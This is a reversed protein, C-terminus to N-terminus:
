DLPLAEGKPVAVSGGGGVGEAADEPLLLASGAVMEAEALPALLPVLQPPVNLPPALEEPLLLAAAVSELLLEPEALTLPTCDTEAVRVAQLLPLLRGDSLLVVEAVPEGETEGETPPNFETEPSAEKLPTDILAAGVAGGLPLRALLLLATAELLLPPPPPPPAVPVTSASVPVPAGDFLPPPPPLAEPLALVVALSELHALMLAGPPLELGATLALPPAVKTDNETVALLPPAAPPAPLPEMALVTLGRLLELPVGETAVRLLAALPLPASAEAVASNGVGDTRAGVAEGEGLTLAVSHALTALLAEPKAVTVPATECSLVAVVAGDRRWLAEEETVKEVSADRTGVGVAVAVGDGEMVAGGDGERPCAEGEADDQGCAVGVGCREAGGEVEGRGLTEVVPEGPGLPLLKPVQLLEPHPEAERLASSVWGGVGQGETELLASPLLAELPLADTLLLPLTLALLAAECVPALLLLGADEVDAEGAAERLMAAVAGNEAVRCGEKLERPVLEAAAESLPSAETERDGAGVPLGVTDPTGEALLEADTPAALPLPHALAQAVADTPPPPM